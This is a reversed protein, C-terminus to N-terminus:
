FCLENALFIGPSEIAIMPTGKKKNKPEYGQILAM